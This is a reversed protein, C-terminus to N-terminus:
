SILLRLLSELCLYSKWFRYFSRFNVDSKVVLGLIWMSCFLLWKQCSFEFIQFIMFLIECFILSIIKEAFIWINSVAEIFRLFNIYSKKARFNLYKFIVLLFGFFWHYGNKVRFNLYKCFFKLSKKEIKPSKEEFFRYILWLKSFSLTKVGWIDICWDLEQLWRNDCFTISYRGNVSKSFNM